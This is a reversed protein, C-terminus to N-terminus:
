LLPVLKEKIISELNYSQKVRKNLKILNSNELYNLVVWAIKNSDNNKIDIFQLYESSIEKFVKLDSAFVPTKTL